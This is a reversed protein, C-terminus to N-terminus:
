TKNDKFKLLVKYTETSGASLLQKQALAQGDSYSITYELYSGLQKETTGNSAYGKNSITSIMADITGENYVSIQYLITMIKKRLESRTMQEM